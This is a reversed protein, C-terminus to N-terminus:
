LATLVVIGGLLAAGVIQWAIYDGVHGSHLGRVIRLPAALRSEMARGVGRVAAVAVVVALAPAILGILVREVTWGEVHEVPLPAPAVGDLVEGAFGPRDMLVAGAHAAWNRLAPVLGIVLAGVLLLIVPVLMTASLREGPHPGGTERARDAPEESHRSSQDEPAPRGVGLFVRAWMRLVASGTLAGITTGIVPLWHAGAAHETITKGLGTGFPPLGALGLGGLVVLGGTIELNRGKGHLVHESISAYRHLLIGVLCFLAGEVGAHGLADVTTGALGAPAVAGVGVLFLGGHAVTAFALMRKLHHQLVSMVGGVLGTLVGIGILPGRITDPTLSGSFVTWYVRAVAVSALALLSCSLMVCVPTPAVAEADATWFHFPVVASKVLLGGIVLVFAAVVLVDPPRAALARGIPALGLADTRAYLLSIGTLIFVGAVTTTAGFTLAGQSPQDQATLYGTLAYATTSTLEFFIFLSFLDGTVSFGVLGALLLLMLAHFAPGSVTFHHWSYVLVLTMLVASLLAMAAGLPDVALVIGVSFGQGPPGTPTWNGLWTVVRSSPSDQVELLLLLTLVTTALAAALAGIDLLVRPIWRGIGTLIAGAGLPVVIAAVTVVM